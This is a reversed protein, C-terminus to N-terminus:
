KKFHKLIKLGKKIEINGLYFAKGLIIGELNKIKNKNSNKKSVLMELNSYSNLGGGLITKKNFLNIFKDIIDFNLGEMTGDRSVDTVVYGRINSRKYIKNIDLITLKSSETWGDVMVQNKSGKFLIDMSVYLKDKFENAIEKVLDSNKVALSGIILYNIENNLWFRVDEKTRIGGGLQIPVKVARRIDVIINKNIKPKGFAADLDIIHIRECGQDEFYKAQEIPNKNFVISTKEIGKTLRVCKNDKLDIAPVLKV